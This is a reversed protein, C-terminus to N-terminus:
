YKIKMLFLGSPPAPPACGARRKATMVEKFKNLTWKKEGLYKLCGVMSRVQQQLFSKSTFFIEIKNQNNKIKINELTKIASKANCSAARYTSFDKTGKLLKGGKVILNIDLKKEVHWAHNKKLVLSAPRNIIVYKYVRKKASYRAHFYSNRKMLSLISINKKNLFFNLSKLFKEKNIIEFDIKFHASQEIAHVGKDTRGSGHLVIKTKLIKKIIKQIEGQITKANKQIQWGAFNSGDYEILIQYIFM